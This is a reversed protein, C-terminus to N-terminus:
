AEVTAEHFHMEAEIPLQDPEGASLIEQVFCVGAIIAHVHIRREFEASSYQTKSILPMEAAYM